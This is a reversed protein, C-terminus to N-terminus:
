NTLFSSILAKIEESYLNLFYAILWGILNVFKTSGEKFDFGIWNLFTSPIRLFKKISVIPNLAKLFNSVAYNREMRIDNYIRIANAYTTEQSAGYELTPAYFGCYKVIKPYYFLLSNLSDAYDDLLVLARHSSPKASALYKEIVNIISDIDKIKFFSHFITCIYILTPITLLYKLM